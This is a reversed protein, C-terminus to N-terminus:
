DLANLEVGALLEVQVFDVEVAEVGQGLGHVVEVVRGGVVAVTELETPLAQDKLTEVLTTIDQGAVVQADVM